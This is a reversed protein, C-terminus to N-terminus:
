ISCINSLILDTTNPCFMSSCINTNYNITNKSFHYKVKLM